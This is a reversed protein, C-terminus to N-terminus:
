DDFLGGDDNLYDVVQEKSRETKTTVEESAGELRREDKSDWGKIYHAGVEGKAVEYPLVYIAAKKTVCAHECLGCGTCYNSNVVPLLYAHKGTRNNQRYELTIAKDLLPCARHCADCQIGWFAICSEEDVVAIGMNAKNIDLEKKENLVLTEDLANTPCVPVCPIDTCMYCPIERPKFYPTGIPMTDGPKALLLTDFPCAEVCQGCKICSKLFENEQRAAPPRLILPAAKAEELYASWVMGGLASLGVGQAMSSLFRRRDSIKKKM